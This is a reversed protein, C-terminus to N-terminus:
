QRRRRSSSDLSLSLTGAKIEGVNDLQEVSAGDSIVNTPLLLVAEHILAYNIDPYWRTRVRWVKSRFCTSSSPTSFFIYPVHM